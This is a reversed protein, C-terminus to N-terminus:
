RVRLTYPVSHLRGDVVAQLFLEWTGPTPVLVGVRLEGHGSSRGTVTSAGLAGACAPTQAGCVHTHFYDLTGKRFFIAHALAGYFPTLTAPRSHSDTVRVRLFAPTVARIHPQSTLTFTVGQQVQRLRLPPLPHRVANGAVDVWRWLQFNPPGGTAAPYVDVLVRYRGPEPFTVPLSVTGDPAPRPHRHIILSLDDRVIIVHVGTHPGAGRRFRTLTAGSPQRVAFTLMTPRGPQVGSVPTFGALQYTRAPQFTPISPGGSSSGCGTVLVSAALVAGTLVLPRM